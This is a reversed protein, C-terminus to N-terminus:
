GLGPLAGTGDGLSKTPAGAIDLMSLYLNNLPTSRAYAVHRGPRVTGGGRGALLIPLDDHNHRNGDGIGSGIMILSNDLLTGDGERVERLRSLLYAYQEIHFRNIRRIKEIKDPDNGHHSLGHHGERVDAQPYALNSGGNGLMFTAVRTTDTQFALVLLECLIRIHERRDERLADRTMTPAPFSAAAGTPDVRLRETKEIRAELERVGALYEDLKARDAVGLRDRLARADEGVFDLISKRRRIRRERAADTEGPKGNLFLREFVVRPDVDKSSPTSPGRWSINNSYACSYGSDCEGNSRGGEVGLELSAFRTEAGVVRAAVQDVSVGVRLNAGGTKVPHAGTLFVAASRAHDGPGDGHARAQDQALGSLVLLDDRHAALPELIWPLAFARGELAPTWDAMHAGNPMFLFALRRPHAPADEARALARMAGSMGELWPLALAAGVGRLVTRRSLPNRAFPRPSSM